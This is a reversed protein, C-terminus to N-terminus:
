KKIECGIAEKINKFGELRLLNALEGNIKRILSPGEFILATYIEILSAGQKIRWLADDASCIGGCSILTTKGFLESAVAKFFERSKEKIIEGSLGGINKAGHYLSYDVSTNNLIIASFGLECAKKCLAIAAEHEMDPALKLIFPKKALKKLENALIELFEDNQLARLNPTNPSSINIVFGDCLENFRSALYIYDNIANENPTLKNKGINAFVPAKLPYFPRINKEVAAAGHNNFGMANQISKIEKLRWLRPRPNGVQPRPTFTGYELFGFGLSQLHYALDGNKDFGGALGVPNEFHLGLLDQSLIEDKFSFTKKFFESVFPTNNAVKLGLSAASHACEPSMKFILPKLSEYFSM